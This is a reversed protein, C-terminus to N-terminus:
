GVWGPADPRALVTLFLAEIAPIDDEADMALTM